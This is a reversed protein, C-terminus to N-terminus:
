ERTRNSEAVRSASLPSSTTWKRTLLSGAARSMRSSSPDIREINGGESSHSSAPTARIGYADTQRSYLSRIGPTRGVSAVISAPRVQGDIGELGHM